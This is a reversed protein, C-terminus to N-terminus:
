STNKEFVPTQGVAFCVFAFFFFEMQIMAKTNVPKITQNKSSVHKFLLETKKEEEPAKGESM